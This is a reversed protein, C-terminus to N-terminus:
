ERLKEEIARILQEIDFPKQLMVTRADRPRRRAEDGTVDHGTILIIPLKPWGKRVADAVIVGDIDPLSVDIVLADPHAHAVMGVIGNELEAHSEEVTALLALCWYPVRNRWGRASLHAAGSVLAKEHASDNPTECRKEDGQRREGPLDRNRDNGACYVALEM